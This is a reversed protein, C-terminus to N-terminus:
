LHTLPIRHRRVKEEEKDPVIRPRFGTQAPIELPRRTGKERPQLPVDPASSNQTPATRIDTRLDFRDCLREVAATLRQLHADSDVTRQRLAMVVATQESIAKELGAIRASVKEGALERRLAEIEKAQQQIRRELEVIPPIDDPSYKSM